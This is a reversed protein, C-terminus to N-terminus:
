PNAEVATETKGSAETDSPTQRLLDLIEYNDQQMPQEAVQRSLADIEGNTLLPREDNIIGYQRLVAITETYAPTIDINLSNLGNEQTYWFELSNQYTQEWGDATFMTGGARGADIDRLVAELVARAVKEEFPYSSGSWGKDRYVTQVYTMSGGTLRDLLEQETLGSRGLVVARQVAPEQVLTGLQAVLSNPDKLEEYPYFLEYSRRMQTRGLHYTLTVSSQGMTKQVEDPDGSYFRVKQLEEEEKGAILARHLQLIREITGPDQVIGSIYSNGDFSFEVSQVAAADPVRTEVGTVDLGVGIGLALVVATVFVAGKWGSRLVRFSKCLLMEAGFFGVLGLAAMCVLALPLAPSKVSGEFFESWILYYLWQGATLAACIGLGFRFVHRAWSVAVVDGATESRRVRYVALAAGALVLGALVYVGLTGLGTVTHDVDCRLEENWTGTAELRAMLQYPPTLWRVWAPTGGGNYGYLFISGLMQVAQCLAMVVVNLAAYFVPVALIQGTFMTCFVAFSYFFLMQGASCIFWLGINRWELVGAAGQVAAALLGTVALASLFVICGAVYHTFFLGERRIPFSHMMGVSRASCLYSFLAMAFFCGFALGMWMGMETGMSLLDSIAADMLQIPTNYRASTGFLTLFQNLPVAVLWVALYACWLPWFRCLDKRLLAGNFCSTKSRM